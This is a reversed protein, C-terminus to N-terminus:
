SHNASIDCSPCAAPSSSDGSANNTTCAGESQPPTKRKYDTEYFGSGKFLIGAGGSVIRELKKKECKPCITLQEESMSQFEQFVYGCASCEYNYTPM